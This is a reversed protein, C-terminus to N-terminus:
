AVRKINQFHTLYLHLYVNFKVKVCDAYETMFIGALIDFLRLYLDFYLFDANFNRLSLVMLFHFIQLPFSTCTDSLANPNFENQKFTSTCARVNYEIIESPLVEISLETYRM